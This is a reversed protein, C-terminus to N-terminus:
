GEFHVALWVVPPTTSTFTVWHPVGAGIRVHDGAALTIEDSDAIRMRAEGQLVIVWEDRDQVMPADEPTVQGKSVIREVRVGRTYVLTDFAEARAAAPLKAYVNSLEPKFRPKPKPAPEPKAEPAAKRRKLGKTSGAWDAHMAGRLYAEVEAASATLGDDGIGLVAKGGADVLGFKGFDGGAKRRRSAKLKLGRHTAMARLADTSADAMARWRALKAKRQATALPTAM